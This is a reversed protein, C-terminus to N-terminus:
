KILYFPGPLKYGKGVHDGKLDSKQDGVSLIIHYGKAEISARAATKYAVATDHEHMKNRLILGDWQHYGAAELNKVTADREAERRGTVFFVAVKNEKAFHYLHLTPLIVPDDGDKGLALIQAMTGGFNLKLMEPYNSLATEDIDLVIAPKKGHPIGQELALKLYRMADAIVKAIDREYDGSDHYKIVANKAETLNTPEKALVVSGSFFTFFILVSLAFRM